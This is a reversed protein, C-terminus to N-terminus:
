PAVKTFENVIKLAAKAAEGRAVDHELDRYLNAVQDLYEPLDSDLPVLLQRLDMPWSFRVYAGTWGGGREFGLRNMATIFEDLTM